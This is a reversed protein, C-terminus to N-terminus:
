EVGAIYNSTIFALTGKFPNGCLVPFSRIEWSAKHAFNISCTLPQPLLTEISRYTFAWWFRWLTTEQDTKFRQQRNAVPQKDNQCELLLRKDGNWYSMWYVTTKRSACPTVASYTRVFRYSLTIRTTQKWISLLILLILYSQFNCFILTSM